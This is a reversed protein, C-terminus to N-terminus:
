DWPMGGLMSAEVEYGGGGTARPPALGEAAPVSAAFHFQQVHPFYFPLALLVELSRVRVASRDRRFFPFPFPLSSLAKPPFVGM